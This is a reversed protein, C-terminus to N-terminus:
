MKRQADNLLKAIRVGATALQQDVVPVIARYYDAGLKRNEPLVSVHDKAIRHAEM